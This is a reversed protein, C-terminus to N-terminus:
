FMCKVYDKTEPGCGDLDYEDGDCRFEDNGCSLLANYEGGCGERDAERQADEIDDVCDDFEKSSCGVCDCIKNCLSSASPGCGPALGWLAVAAFGLFAKGLQKITRM